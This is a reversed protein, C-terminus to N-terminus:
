FLGLNKENMMFFHMMEIFGLLKKILKHMEKQALDYYDKKKFLVVTNSERKEIRSYKQQKGTAISM